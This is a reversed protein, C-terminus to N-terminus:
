VGCTIDAILILIYNCVEEVLRAHSDDFLELAGFQVFVANLICSIPLYLKSFKVTTLGTESLLEYKNVPYISSIINLTYQIFLRLSFDHFQWWRGLKIWCPSVSLLLIFNDTIKNMFHVICFLSLQSYDLELVRTYQLFVQKAQKHNTSLYYQQHVRNSRQSKNSFGLLNFLAFAENLAYEAVRHILLV